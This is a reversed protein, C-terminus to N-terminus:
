NHHQNKFIIKAHLKQPETVPQQPFKGRWRFHTYSKFNPGM